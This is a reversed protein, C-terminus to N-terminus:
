CGANGWALTLAWAWTASATDLVTLVARNDGRGYCVSDGDSFRVTRLVTWGRHLFVDDYFARLASLFNQPLYTREVTAQDFKNSATERTLRAGPFEPITGMEAVLEVRHADATRWCAGGAVALAILALIGAALFLARSIRRRGQKDQVHHVM